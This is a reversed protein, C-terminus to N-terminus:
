ASEGSPEGCKIDGIRPALLMELFQCAISAASACGAWGTELRVSHHDVLGLSVEVDRVADAAVHGHHIEGAAPLGLPQRRAASGAVQRERGIAALNVAGMDIGDRALKARRGIGSIVTM